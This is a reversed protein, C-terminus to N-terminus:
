HANKAVVDIGDIEAVAQIGVNHGLCGNVCEQGYKEQDISIPDGQDEVQWQKRIVRFLKDIM